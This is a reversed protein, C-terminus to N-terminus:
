RKTVTFMVKEIGATSRDETKVEINENFYQAVGDILGHALDSFHRSSSYHLVLCNDSEQEYSFDPLEADPYLKHVEVHIHNDISKLFSFVDECEDFFSTFKESFVGALYKGFSYVLQQVPVDTRKSLAVVLAVLEKADYTGVSTYAGGSSLHESCDDIIDDLMDEDFTNVVMENFETFVLGKM